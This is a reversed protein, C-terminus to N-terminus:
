GHYGANAIAFRAKLEKRKKELAIGGMILIVGAVMFFIYPNFLDWFWEFYKIVIFGTIWASAKNVVTMDMNEYGVYLMMLVIGAFAITFLSRFLVDMGPRISFFLFLSLALMVIAAINEAFFTKTKVMGFFLNAVSFLLAVICLTVVWGASAGTIQTAQTDSFEFIPYPFKMSLLFVILVSIQLGFLRYVRAIPRLKESAYHFGGIGFLMIGSAIGVSFTDVLFRSYGFPSSMAKTTETAFVLYIFAFFLLAALSAITGSLFGYVVPLIGVLWIGLLIYMSEPSSNMNYIQAILFISAGFLLAGLFILGAGAKPYNQKQYAFVYGLYYSGFTTGLLLIIKLFDPMAHWNLAVLLIAGVGFLVSGLSVISTIFSGSSEEKRTQTADAFMKTAQEQTITGSQLWEQIQKQDVM